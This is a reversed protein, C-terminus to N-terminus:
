HWTLSNLVMDFSDQLPKTGTTDDGTLTISALKSGNMTYAVKSFAASQDTFITYINGKISATSKKYTATDAIRLAFGSDSSMLGGRPISINVALLWSTIDAAKYSFNEIDPPYIATAPRPTLGSSYNFTVYKGVQTKPKLSVKITTDPHVTDNATKIKGSVPSNLNSLILNIGILLGILLTAFVGLTIIKNKSM